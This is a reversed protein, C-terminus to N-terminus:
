DRKVEREDKINNIKITHNKGLNDSFKIYYELTNLNEKIHKLLDDGSNYLRYKLEIKQSEGGRLFIAGGLDNEIIRHTTMLSNEELKEEWFEKTIPSAPYEFNNNKFKLFLTPKDISGSGSNKNRVDFLLNFSFYSYKKIQELREEMKEKSRNGVFDGGLIVNSVKIDAVVQKAMLKEMKHTSYAYMGTIIVLILTVYNNLFDIGVKVINTVVAVYDCLFGITTKIIDMIINVFECIM